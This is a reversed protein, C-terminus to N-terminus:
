FEIDNVAQHEFAAKFLDVGMAIDKVGCVSRISHMALIPLGIDVILRAGNIGRLSNSMIPGITGGSRSDNRIHFVQLEMGETYQDVLTQAYLWGPSDSLVHMNSDIKITPGTNITPKHGDLYVASYNPNVAHTVDSSIVITNAMLQASAAPSGAVSEFIDRLQGSKAGTRSGSGIEEHNACYTGVFGDYEAIEEQSFQKSFEVLAEIAAFSCLRDDLASSFIMSDDLGGIIAPQVDYLDLDAVLVQKPQVGALDSIFDDWNQKGLGVIPVMKTQPNYPKDAVDGFHEALKPITGIPRKSDILRREVKNDSGRVLVSGAVGLDRNLYRHDFESSYPAVALRQYGDKTNTHPGRPNVKVSVADVHTGVFLSGKAPTWQKGIIFAVISLSDRIDYWKGPELNQIRQNHKIRSFGADILRNEFNTITHYTTPSANMFKVYDDAYTRYRDHDHEISDISEQSARPLAMQSTFSKHIGSVDLHYQSEVVETDTADPSDHDSCEPTIDPTIDSLIDEGSPDVVVFKDMAKNTTTSTTAPYPKAM